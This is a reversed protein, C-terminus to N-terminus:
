TPRKKPPPEKRVPPKDRSAGELANLRGTLAHIDERLGQVEADFKEAALLFANDVGGPSHEWPFTLGHSRDEVLKGNEDLRRVEVTVAALCYAYGMFGRIPTWYKLVLPILGLLSAISGAIYFIELGTEHETVFIKTKSNEIVHGTGQMNGDAPTSKLGVEGTLANLLDQYSRHNDVNDSVKLSVVREPVTGLLRAAHELKTVFAQM